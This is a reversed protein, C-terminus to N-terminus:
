RGGGEKRGKDRGEEEEERKRVMKGFIRGEETEEVKDREGKTTGEKTEEIKRAGKERASDQLGRM